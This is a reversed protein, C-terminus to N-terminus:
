SAVSQWATEQGNQASLPTDLLEGLVTLAGDLRLMTQELYQVRPRLKGLEENATTLEQRLQGMRAEIQERTM